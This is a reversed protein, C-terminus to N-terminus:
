VVNNPLFDMAQGGVTFHPTLHQQHIYINAGMGPSGIKFEWNQKKDVHNINLMFFIIICWLRKRLSHQEYKMYMYPLFDGTSFIEWFISSVLWWKWPNSSFKGGWPVEERINASIQRTKPVTYRELCGPPPPPYLHNPRLKCHTISEPPKVKYHPIFEPGSEYTPM